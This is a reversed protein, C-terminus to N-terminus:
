DDENKTVSILTGKLYANDCYLGYSSSLESFEFDMENQVSGLYGFL